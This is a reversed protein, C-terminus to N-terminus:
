GRAADDPPPSVPRADRVTVLTPASAVATAVPAPKKGWLAMTPGSLVYSAAAVFGSVQPMAFILALAVVMLAVMEVPASRRRFNIAKFSPYPVSSIMLAALGLTIPVMLTCLMRPSNLEFYSYAVVIGSVMVAAGPVPLGVFRRKDVTATQVNFRALRLAACVVFMGSVVVAWGAIPRLAWTYVITAPAVGFAVVDALSDLETGFQSTSRSLRAVRGDLGDCIFAVFVMLAALEFHSNIASVLAYFGSLLGLSTITAPAIFVGRKLPAAVKIQHDRIRGAILRIRPRRPVESVESM